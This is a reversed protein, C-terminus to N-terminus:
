VIQVLTILLVVHFSTLTQKMSNRVIISPNYLQPSLTEAFSDGKKETFGWEDGELLGFALEKQRGAVGGGGM